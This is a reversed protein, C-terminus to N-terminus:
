NASKIQPWISPTKVAHNVEIPLFLLQYNKLFGYLLLSITM